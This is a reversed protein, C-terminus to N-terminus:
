EQFYNKREKLSSEEMDEPRGRGAIFCQLANIFLETDMSHVFKIHVARISLCTFLAGYRETTTQGHCVTFPAFLDVVFTFPPKSPTDRDQPLSAMTQQMVPAQRRRCSFCM